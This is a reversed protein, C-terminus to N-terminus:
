SSRPSGLSGGHAMGPLSHAREPRTLSLTCRSWPARHASAIRVYESTLRSLCSWRTTIVASRLADKV